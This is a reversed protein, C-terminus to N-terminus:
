KIRIHHYKKKGIRIEIRGDQLDDAGVRRDSDALREGNLYIGGQAVLRRGESRSKLLGTQALLELLGPRQELQERSLHTGPISSENATLAGRPISSSPLLDPPIHREGFASAASRLADRAAAEGHTLRTTEFALVTKASNLQAGQINAITEIEECPLLTFFNLFRVVDRDDTNVWYQFYDYPAVREPDLWLAGSETKGMKNGSATELLPFTLGYVEESELRRTLDAGAIINAWQDDGGMQLRCGYNRFLMLFDYAQLLQYNFELFSLGTEMRKRYAEFTLMRNVSFHRGIDRLFEIYRLEGLWEYNDVTIAKGDSFDLYRSLQAKIKEGNSKIRERSLMKRMETKGSPDGVMATGGGIIAIPRHGFRQMQAMGMVAMLHGAHLSDATPDIGVYFTVSESALLEKLPQPDTVQQIFGRRGLEDYVNGSM